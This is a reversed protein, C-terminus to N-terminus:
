GTNVGNKEGRRTKIENVWQKRVGPRELFAVPNKYIDGYTSSLVFMGDAFDGYLQGLVCRNGCEMDLKRPNVKHAWGPYVEDLMAAKEVVARENTTPTEPMFGPITPLRYKLM